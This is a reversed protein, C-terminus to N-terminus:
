PGAPRWRDRDERDERVMAAGGGPPMRAQMTQLKAHRDDARMRRVEAEFLDRALDNPNLGRARLYDLTEQSERFQVRGTV